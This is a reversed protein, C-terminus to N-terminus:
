HSAFIPIPSDAVMKRSVGGLLLEQLRPRGYLGMVLLDVGLEAVQREIVEVASEDQSPDTILQATVGHKALLSQLLGDPGGEGDPSVTLVHVEQAQRLIAWSDQLARAAERGGNWAVLVRRGVPPAYDDDPTILVPGGSALTVQAASLGHESLCAKAQRPFVTLDSRRAVALFAAPSDGGVMRWDHEVGSDACAAEFQGKAEAAIKAVAEDHGSLVRQVVDAPLATLSEAAMYQRVYQSTLFVGTLRAGQRQALDAAARARLGSARGEDVQVIIQRFSM